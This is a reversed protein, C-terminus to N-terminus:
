ARALRAIAQRTQDLSKSTKGAHIDDAHGLINDLRRQLDRERRASQLLLSAVRLRRAATIMPLGSALTPALDLMTAVADGIRLHMLPDHEDARVLAAVHVLYEAALNAPAHGAAPAAPHAADRLNRTAAKIADLVEDRVVPAITNTNDTTNM